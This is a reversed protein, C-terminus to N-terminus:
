ERVIYGVGRGTHILPKLPSHDVKRRLYRMHVNLDNNTEKFHPGWAANILEQRTLARGHNRMLLEILRYEKPTLRVNKGARTVEHRKPDLVLDSVKLILSDTTKRRRLLARIRAFLEEIGFPKTLYDDAGVDLGGVRDQLTARATLMIIPTHIQNKRLERCVEIGDKKPLMIDLVIVDYSNKLGKELGEEGDYATDVAYKESTLATKLIDSLKREDEIVLIAM